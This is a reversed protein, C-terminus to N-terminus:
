SDPIFCNRILIYPLHSSGEAMRSNQTVRERPWVTLLSRPRKSLLQILEIKSPPFLHDSFMNIIIGRQKCIGKSVLVIGDDNVYESMYDLVGHVIHDPPTLVMLTLATTDLHNVQTLVPTGIFYDM